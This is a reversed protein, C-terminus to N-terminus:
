KTVLYHKLFIALEYAKSEKNIEEILEKSKTYEGKNVLVIAENLIAYDKILFDDSKRLAELKYSDANKEALQYELLEKLYKLSINEENLSKKARLYLALEYLNKNNNKLYELSDNDNQELYTSLANNAKNLNTEDISNKIYIGIPTVIALFILVYIIKKYKKFFREFKVFNVLLKEDNSFEDKIFKVEDKMSM